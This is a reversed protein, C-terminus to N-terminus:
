RIVMGTDRGVIDLTYDVPGDRPSILVIMWAYGSASMLMQATEDLDMVPIDMIRYGNQYDYALVTLLFDTEPPVPTVLDTLSVEAGDVCVEYIDWGYENYAQDTMYRFGIMVEQGDYASLDFSLDVTGGSSGTIGPLNAQIAEVDTWNDSTCYDGVDDLTTWTEGGDTSVQVFGFDYEEEINWYTTLNLWHLYDGGEIPESLNVDLTMLHDIMDGSGSYWHSTAILSGIPGIDIYEWGEHVRDDGDFVFKTEEDGMYNLNDIYIYDTGYAELYDNVGVEAYSRTLRSYYGAYDYVGYNEITIHYFTGGSMIGILAPDISDYTYLGGGISDDFLLNALRWDRFVKEFTMRNNGLDLLAADVSETGQLQSFFLAQMMPKGGYHDYLYAMFMQVAGYDGLIYDDGLDGWVTLANDPYQFFHGMHSYSLGYGCLFESIMSLGENLWTDENPDMEAHLLHQYEHAVTGEYVYSYHGQIGEDQEGTRNAWDFCDIHMVNRDYMDRITQWYFGAVYGGKYSPVYYSYDRINFIMIMMKGTDNTPFLEGTINAETINEDDYVYQWNSIDPASGNRAPADIFMETMTPYINNDFEDIIYAVDDDTIDVLGNRPDVPSYYTLDDAVWVECENGEGRKTMSEQYWTLFYTNQTWFSMTTNVPINDALAEESGLQADLVSLECAEKERIAEDAYMPIQDAYSLEVVESSEGAQPVIVLLAGAVMTFAVIVAIIKQLNRMM